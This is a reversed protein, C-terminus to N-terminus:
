DFSTSFPLTPDTLGVGEIRFSQEEGRAHSGVVRFKVMTTSHRANAHATDVSM